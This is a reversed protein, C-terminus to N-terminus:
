EKEEDILRQYRAIVRQLYIVYRQYAKKWKDFEDLLNILNQEHILQEITNTDQGRYVLSELEKIKKQRAAYEADLSTLKDRYYKLRQSNTVM